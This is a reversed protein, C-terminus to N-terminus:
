RKAARETPLQMARRQPTAASNIEPDKAKTRSGSASQSIPRSFFDIIRQFSASAPNVYFLQACNRPTRATASTVRILVRQKEL